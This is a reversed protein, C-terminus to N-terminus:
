ATETIPTRLPSMAHQVAAHLADVDTLLESDSPLIRWHPGPGQVRHPPPVVLYQTPGLSRTGPVDWTAASGTQVFWYLAPEDQIVAGSSSGLQTLVHPGAGSPVRVADWTVGAGQITHGGITNTSHMQPNERSPSM